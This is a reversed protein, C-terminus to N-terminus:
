LRKMKKKKQKILADMYDSLVGMTTDYSVSVQGIKQDALLKAEELLNIEKHLDEIKEAKTIKHVM